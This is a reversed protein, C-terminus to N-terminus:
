EEEHNLISGQFKERTITDIRNIMDKTLYNKHDGVQGKRFYSNHPFEFFSFSDTSKNVEHNRLTEISSSRVVEEVQEENDFPYGLFEALKTVHTKPDRKLEEYTIFFFKKPREMSEKHYGLVDDYYPGFAIHGKCFNDVFDELPWPFTKFMELTNVFHWMSVLTDKPNRAVYVVRCDSTYVTEGIIQYPLHTGFIRNSSSTDPSPFPPPSTAHPGYVQLELQPVLKHPNSRTLQDISSRNVIYYLLSKLWTTGTKPFSALIVDNPLPKFHKLLEETAQLFFPTFWFGHFKILYNGSDDALM